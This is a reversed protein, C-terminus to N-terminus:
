DLKNHIAFNSRIRNAIIFQELDTLLETYPFYLNSLYYTYKSTKIQVVEEKRPTWFFIAKKMDKPEVIERRFLSRFVIMDNEFIVRKSKAQLWIYLIILSTAIYIISLIRVHLDPLFFVYSIAAMIIPYLIIYLLVPMVIPKMKYIYENGDV